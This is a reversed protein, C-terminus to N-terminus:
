KKSKNFQKDFLYEIYESLPSKWQQQETNAYKGFKKPNLGLKKAMEVQRNSLKYKLKADQWIIETHKAM